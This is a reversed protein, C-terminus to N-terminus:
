RPLPPQDTSNEYSSQWTDRRMSQLLGRSSAVTEILLRRDHRKCPIGSIGPPDCKVARLDRAIRDTRQFILFHTQSSYITSRIISQLIFILFFYISLLLFSIILFITLLLGFLLTIGIQYNSFFYKM